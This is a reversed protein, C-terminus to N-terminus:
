SDSYRGTLRDYILTAVGERGNEKFRIKQVHIQVEPNKPESLDRWISLGNDAKNRWHASGAIDYLNSVPYSGDDAKQLKTPHATIWIHINRERAFRRIKSLSASIYETESFGPPRSHDLENWPDILLGKIGKRYVLQDALTLVGTVNLTEDEPLIFSFHEDLWQIAPLLSEKSIRLNPGESFSM